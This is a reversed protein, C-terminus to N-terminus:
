EKRGAKKGFEMLYPVIGIGLFIGGTAGLASGGFTGRVPPAAALGLLFAGSLVMGLRTTGGMELLWDLGGSMGPTHVLVDEPVVVQEVDRVRELAIMM